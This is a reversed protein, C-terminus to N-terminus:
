RDRPDGARRRPRSNAPYRHSWLPWRICCSHAAAGRGQPDNRRPRGTGGDPVHLAGLRRIRGRANPTFRSQASKRRGHQAPRRSLASQRTGDRLDRVQHRRAAASAYRAHHGGRDGPRPRHPWQRRRQPTRARSPATRARRACREGQSVARGRLTGRRRGRCRRRSGTRRPDSGILAALLVADTGARYGNRPQRIKLAGGLFLDETTRDGPGSNPRM